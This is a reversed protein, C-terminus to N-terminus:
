TVHIMHARLNIGLRQAGILKAVCRLRGIGRTSTRCGFDLVESAFRSGSFTYRYWHADDYHVMRPRLNSLASYVASVSTAM